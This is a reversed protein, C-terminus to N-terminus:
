KYRHFFAPLGLSDHGDQALNGRLPGVVVATVTVSAVVCSVMREAVRLHDEIDWWRIHDVGVLHGRCGINVIPEDCDFPEPVVIRIM